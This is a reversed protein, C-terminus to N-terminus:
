GIISYKDYGFTVPTTKLGDPMHSYSETNITLPAINTFQYIKRIKLKKYPGDKSLMVIDCRSCKVNKPSKKSRAVFGNYGVLINWPKLVLDIFSLNTELFTINLNNYPVRESIILPSLFGGYQLSSHNANVSSDPLDVQKAFVCGIFNNTQYQHKGNILESVSNNSIKWGSGATEYNALQSNLSKLCNVSDLHFHCYWLTPLAINTAWEGLLELYYEYPSEFRDM